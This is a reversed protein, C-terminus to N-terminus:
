PKRNKLNMLQNIGENDMMLGQENSLLLTEIKERDFFSNKGWKSYPIMANSCLKYIYSKSWGTHLILEEVTLVSKKQIAINELLEEIRELRTKESHNIM